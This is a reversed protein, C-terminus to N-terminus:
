ETQIIDLEPALPFHGTGAAKTPCPPAQHGVGGPLDMSVQSGYRIEALDSRPVSYTIGGVHRGYPAQDVRGRGCRQSRRGSGATQSIHPEPRSRHTFVVAASGGPADVILASHLLARPWTPPADRRSGTTEAAALVWCAARRDHHRLNVRVGGRLDVGPRCFDFRPPADGSL